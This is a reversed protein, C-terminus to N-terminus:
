NGTLLHLDKSMEACRKIEQETSSCRQENRCLKKNETQLNSHSSVTVLHHHKSLCATNLDGHFGTDETAPIVKPFSLFQICVCLNGTEKQMQSHIKKWEM